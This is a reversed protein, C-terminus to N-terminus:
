IAEVVQDRGANKALYMAADARACLQEFSEDHRLCAVGMSATPNISQFDVHLAITKLASRIREALVIGEALDTDVALVVFEEGGYRAPTDSERATKSLCVGIQRLVEDGVPHGFRDNISKFNDVDLMILTLDRNSRKTQATALNAIEFFARRNCLNTLADINALRGLEANATRLQAISEEVRNELSSNIENIQKIKQKITDVMMIFSQTLDGLEDEPGVKALENLEENMTDVNKGSAVGRFVRGLTTLPQSISNAFYWAFPFILVQCALAILGLIQIMQWTDRQVINKSHLGVITGVVQQESFLPILSQYFGEGDVVIQNFAMETNKLTITTQVGRWDPLRYNALNGYSYGKPTFINIKIDTLRSLQDVLLQDLPQVSVVLGLQKIEQKGTAADFALDLIPVHSEIALFGDVVAYHVSEQNPMPSAFNLNIKAVSATSTLTKKSIEDGNKLSFVQFMPSPFRDVFGVLEDSHDLLAFSALNGLADYIATKSFRATRGLKYTDRVLQQYTTFLTERDVDSQAYQALYWITSGLNNQTALRRTAILQNEKREDLSDNIIRSAKHLLASSQDLHQQRIVFSVALMSALAVMMSIAVVSLLLKDRLFRIRM